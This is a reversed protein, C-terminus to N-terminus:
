PPSRCWCRPFAVIGLFLLAVDCARHDTVDHIARAAYLFHGDDDRVARTLVDAV